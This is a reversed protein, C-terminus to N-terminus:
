YDLVSPKSHALRSKCFGAFTNTYRPLYAIAGSEVGNSKQPITTIPEFPDAPYSVPHSEKSRNSLKSFRRLPRPATVTVTYTPQVKHVISEVGARAITQRPTGTSTEFYGRSPKDYGFGELSQELCMIQDQQPAQPRLETPVPQLDPFPETVTKPSPTEVIPPPPLEKEYIHAQRRNRQVSDCSADLRSLFPEPVSQDHDNSFSSYSQYDDQEQPSLAPSPLDIPLYDDESIVSIEKTADISQDVHSSSSSYTTLNTSPARHTSNPRSIESCVTLVITLVFRTSSVCLSGKVDSYTSSMPSVPETISVALNSNKTPELYTTSLRSKPKPQKYELKDKFALNSGLNSEVLLLPAPLRPRQLRSQNAKPM